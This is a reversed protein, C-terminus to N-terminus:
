TKVAEALKVQKLILRPQPDPASSPRTHRWDPMDQYFLQKSLSDQYQTYCALSCAIGFDSTHAKGCTTCQAEEIRM